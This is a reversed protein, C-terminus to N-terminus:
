FQCLTDVFLKKKRKLMVIKILILYMFVIVGFHSHLTKDISQFDFKMVIALLIYWFGNYMQWTWVMTIMVWLSFLYVQSSASNLKFIDNKFVNRTKDCANESSSTLISLFSCSIFQCCLLCFVIVLNLSFRTVIITDNICILKKTMNLRCSVYHFLSDMHLRLHSHLTHRDIYTHLLLSNSTSLM